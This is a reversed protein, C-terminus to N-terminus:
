KVEEYKVITANPCHKELISLVINWDGGGLGCGIGYPIYIEEELGEAAKRVEKLMEPYAEYRTACEGTSIDSQGFLHAVIVGDGIKSFVVDSVMPCKRCYRVYDEHAKPWKMRIQLALGAGMIGRLNVQHCLIGKQDLLNGTITKM